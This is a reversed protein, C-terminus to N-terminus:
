SSASGYRSFLVTFAFTSPKWLVEVYQWGAATNENLGAELDETDTYNVVKWQRREETL